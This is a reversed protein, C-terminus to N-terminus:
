RWFCNTLEGEFLAARKFFGSGLEYGGQDILYSIALYLFIVIVLIPYIGKPYVLSLASIEFELLV